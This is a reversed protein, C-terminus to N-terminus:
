RKRIFLLYAIIGAGVWILYNPSKPQEQAPAQATVYTPTSDGGTLGEMVKMISQNFSEQQKFIDTMGTDTKAKAEINEKETLWSWTQAARIQKQLEAEKLQDALTQFKDTTETTDAM